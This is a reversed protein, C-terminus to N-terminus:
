PFFRPAGPCLRDPGGSAEQSGPQEAAGAGAQAGAEEGPSPVTVPGDAVDGRPLWAPATVQGRQTEPEKRPFRAFRGNGSPPNLSQHGRHAAQPKACGAGGGPSIPTGGTAPEPECQGLSIPRPWFDAHTAASPTHGIGEHAPSHGQSPSGGGRHSTRSHSLARPRPQHGLEWSAVWPRAPLHARPVWGCHPPRPAPRRGGHGAFEAPCWLSPHAFFDVKRRVRELCSAQLPPSPAGSAGTEQQWPGLFFTPPPTDRLSAATPRTRPGLSRPAQPEFLQPRAVLGPSWVPEVQAGDRPCDETKLPSRGCEDRWPPPTPVFAAKDWGSGAGLRCVRRHPAPPWMRGAGWGEGPSFARRWRRGVALSRRGSPRGRPPSAPPASSGPSPPTSLPKESLLPSLRPRGPLTTRDPAQQTRTPSARTPARPQARAQSFRQPGGHVGPMQEVPSSEPPSYM